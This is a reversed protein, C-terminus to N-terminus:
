RRRRHRDLSERSPRSRFLSGPRIVKESMDLMRYDLDLCAFHEIFGLHKESWRSSVCKALAIYFVSMEILNSTAAKNGEHSMRGDVVALDTPNLVPMSRSVLKGTMEEFQEALAGFPKVIESPEFSPFDETIPVKADRSLQTFRLDSRYKRFRRAKRFFHPFLDPVNKEVERLVQAATKDAQADIIALSDDVGGWHAAEENVFRFFSRTTRLMAFTLGCRSLHPTALGLTAGM